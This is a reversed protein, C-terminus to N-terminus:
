YYGWFGSASSDSHIRTVRMPHVVGAVLFPSIEAGDEMTMHVTGESDLSIGKTVAVDTDAAIAKARGSPTTLADLPM